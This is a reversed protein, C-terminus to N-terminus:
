MGEPLVGLQRLMSLEDAVRRIEVLQGERFTLFGCEQMTIARGTAPIGMFPQQQTGRVTWRAAVTDGDVILEDVTSRWDPFAERVFLLGGTFGERGRPGRADVYDPAILTEVLALDGGSILEDFIRHTIDRLNM